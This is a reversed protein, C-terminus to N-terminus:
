PANLTVRAGPSTVVLKGSPDIYHHWQFFIEANALYADSPIPVTVPANPGSYIAIDPSIHLECGASIGVLGLDFPLPLGLWNLNSFGFYLSSTAATSPTSAITMTGGLTPIGSVTIDPTGAAGACANGFTTPLIVYQITDSASTINGAVDEVEVTVTTTGTGIPGFNQTLDWTHTASFPFWATPPGTRNRFRMRSLGSLADSAAIGLQVSLSSTTAAGSAIDLSVGTPGSLDIRYPGANPVGSWNGAVDQHAITFYIAQGEIAPLSTSTSTAPLFTGSINPPVPTGSSLMVATQALGSHADSGNTWQFGITAQNSWTNLTHTTSSIASPSLPFTTDIRFPGYHLTSSRNGANDIAALHLYYGTTSSALTPSSVQGPFSNANLAGSTIQTTPSQDWVARHGAIGSLADTAWSFNVFAVDQPSWGNGPHTPSSLGTPATPATTDVRFPGIEATTASSNGARDISRLAFYQPTGDTALPVTTTTV